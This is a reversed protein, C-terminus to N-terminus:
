KSRPEISDRPVQRLCHRSRPLDFSMACPFWSHLGIAHRVLKANCEKYLDCLLGRPRRPRRLRGRLEAPAIIPGNEGDFAPARGASRATGATRRRGTRTGSRRDRGHGAAPARDRRAERASVPPLRPARWRATAPVSPASASATAAARRRDRPLRRAIVSCSRIGCQSARVSTRLACFCKIRILADQHM